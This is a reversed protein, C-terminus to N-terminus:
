DLGKGGKSFSPPKFKIYGFAWLKAILIFCKSDNFCFRFGSGQFFKDVQHNFISM